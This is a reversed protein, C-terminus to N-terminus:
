FVIGATVQVSLGKKDFTYETNAPGAFGYMNLGLNFDNINQYLIGTSIIASGQALNVIGNLSLTMDSIIFRSFSTFLAAYYKSYSHMEYLNHGQLFTKKDGSNIQTQTQNLVGTTNASIPERYQYNDKSDSFINEEYGRLNYYFEGTIMLRNPVGGATLMRTLSLSLRPAWAEDNKSKTLLSDHVTELRYYNEGKSVCFEGNVSITFVQTSIDFGFVPHFNKKGWVEVAMETGKILFELKGAAAVSDPADASRTDLFGYLNLLTKYPVHVKLGYAGERYGIKQIFLKKEVNILDTPNWFYCRGWQLVQKGTRFYVHNRINFDVFVERLAVMNQNLSPWYGVELNAFAKLGRLLRVDLMLNSTIVTSLATEKKHFGDFWDRTATLIAASTVAGSFSVSKKDRESDISIKDVIKASDIIIGTDAFLANEDVPEQCYCCAFFLLINISLLCLTKM